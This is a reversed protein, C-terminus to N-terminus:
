VWPGEPSQETERRCRMGLTTAERRRTLGTPYAQCHALLGARLTVRAGSQRRSSACKRRVPRKESVPKGKSKGHSVKALEKRELSVELMAVLDTTLPRTEVEV